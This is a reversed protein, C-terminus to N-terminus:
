ILRFKAGPKLKLRTRCRRCVLVGGKLMKSHKAKTIEHEMCSCEYTIRSTRRSPKVEYEHCRDPEQGMLVMLMKWEHGHPQPSNRTKGLPNEKSLKGSHYLFNIFIHALEHYLTDESMSKVYEPNSLIEKNLRITAEKNHQYRAIGATTGVLDYKLKPYPVENEEIDFGENRLTEVTEFFKKELNHSVRERIERTM